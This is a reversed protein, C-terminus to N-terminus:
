LMLVLLASRLFYGKQKFNSIFIFEESTKVTGNFNVIFKEKFKKRIRVIQMIKINIKQIKQYKKMIELYNIKKLHKIKEM